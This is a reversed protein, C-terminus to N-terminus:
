RMRARARGIWRLASPPMENNRRAARDALVTLVSPSLSSESESGRKAEPRAHGESRPSLRNALSSLGATLGPLLANAVTILKAQWSLVLRAEGRRCATVIRRTARQANMSTFPLADAISFWAYEARHRGKFTANRASGTRMLGPCVTTVLVGDKALEARMGESLGTLAFKSACYPLLHPVAVMGGVSSINVIRGEGRHRMEPLVATTLRLPGWFHTEMAREYDAFTMTDMPGVQITGANNVLVDISGFWDIATAVLSKLQAPDAM